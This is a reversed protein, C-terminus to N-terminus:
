TVILRRIQDIILITQKMYDIKLFFDAASNDSTGAKILVESLTNRWASNLGASDHHALSVAVGM